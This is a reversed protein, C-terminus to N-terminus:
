FTLIAKIMSVKAMISKTSGPKASLFDLLLLLDLSLLELFCAGGWDEGAGGARGAAAVRVLGALM